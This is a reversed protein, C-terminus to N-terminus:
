EANKLLMDFGDEGLAFQMEERYASWTKNNSSRLKEREEATLLNVFEEYEGYTLVDGTYESSRRSSSSGRKEAALRALELEQQRDMYDFYWDSALSLATNRAEAQQKAQFMYLEQQRELQAMMGEQVRESLVALYDGELGAIDSAAADMERSKLSSVFTSSGMGRAAADADLEARNTEAADERAAIASDVRPKLYSAYQSSLEAASYAPLSYNPMGGGLKSLILDYYYSFADQNASPMGVTGGVAGALTNYLQTYADVSGGATNADYGAPVYYDPKPIEAAVKGMGLQEVSAIGRLGAIEARIANVSISGPTYGSSIGGGNTVYLDNGLLFPDVELAMKIAKDSAQAAAGTLQDRSVGANAMLFYPNSSYGEPDFVGGMGDHGMSGYNLKNGAADYLPYVEEGSLSYRALHANNANRRQEETQWPSVANGSQVVGYDTYPKGNQDVRRTSYLARNGYQEFAKATAADYMGNVSLGPVYYALAQQMQRIASADSSPVAYAANKVKASSIPLPMNYAPATGAAGGGAIYNAGSYKGTVAQPVSATTGSKAAAKAYASEYAAQTKAGWVGDATVGLLTQINKVKERDDVGTPPTYGSVYYKSAM